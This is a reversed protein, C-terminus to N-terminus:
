TDLHSLISSSLLLQEIAVAADWSVTFRTASFVEV